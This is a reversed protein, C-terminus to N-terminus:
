TRNKAGHKKPFIRPPIPSRSFQSWLFHRRGACRPACHGPPTIIIIFTRTERPGVLNSPSRLSYIFATHSSADGVSTKFENDNCTRSCIKQTARTTQLESSTPSKILKPIGGNWTATINRENQTDTPLGKKFM